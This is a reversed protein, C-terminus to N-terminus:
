VLRARSEAVAESVHSKVARHVIVVLAAGALMELFPYLPLRYRTAVLAAAYIATSGLLMAYVPLLHRWSKRTVIVGAIALTWLSANFVLAVWGKAGAVRTAPSWYAVLRKLYMEIADRPHERVWRTVFQRYIEQREMESQDLSTPPLGAFAARTEQIQRADNNGMAFAIWKETTFVWQGTLSHNRILWPALTALFLVSAVALRRVRAAFPLEGVGPGLGVLAIACLLAFLPAGVARTLAALGAVLGFLVTHGM